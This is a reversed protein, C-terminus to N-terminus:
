GLLGVATNEPDHKGSKKMLNDTVVWMGLEEFHEPSCQNGWQLSLLVQWMHTRQTYITM